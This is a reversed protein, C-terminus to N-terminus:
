SHISKTSFLRSVTVYNLGCEHAIKRYSYGKRRLEFLKTKNLSQKPRGLKVGQAKTRQLGAIIRERILDREFSAIAGVIGPVHRAGIQM